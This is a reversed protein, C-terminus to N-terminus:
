IVKIGDNAINYVEFEIKYFEFINRIQDLNETLVLVYPSNLATRVFIDNRTKFFDLFEYFSINNVNCYKSMFDCGDFKSFYEMESFFGEYDDMKIKPIICDIIRQRKNGVVGDDINKKFLTALNKDSDKNLTDFIGSYNAKVRILKMSNSVTKKYILSGDEDVFCIGGNLITHHAIGTCYVEKTIKGNEEEYYNNQLLELLKEKSLVNGCLYNIGYFIAIQIQANLGMGDHLKIRKDFNFDVMFYSDIGLNKRIMNLYFQVIEVNNCNIIDVNGDVVSIKVYSNVDLALGIGGGGFKGLQVRGVNLLDLDIRAPIRLVVNKDKLRFKMM